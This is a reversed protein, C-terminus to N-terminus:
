TNLNKLTDLSVFRASGDAIKTTRSALVQEHWQPSAVETKEDLLSDWLSEMTQLKEFSSMKEIDSLKV